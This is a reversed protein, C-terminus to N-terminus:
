QQCLVNGGNKSSSFDLDRKVKFPNCFYKSVLYGDNTILPSDKDVTLIAKKTM